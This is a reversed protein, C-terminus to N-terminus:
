AAAGSVYQHLDTDLLETVVYVDEFGEYSVPEMIDLVRLVQLERTLACGCVWACARERSQLAELDEGRAANTENPECEHISRSSADALAVCRRPVPAGRTIKKIAVKQKTELDIASSRPAPPGDALPLHAWCYTSRICWIIFVPFATGHESVM